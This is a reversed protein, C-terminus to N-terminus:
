PEPEYATIPYIRRPVDDDLLDYAILLPRGARTYGFIAPRRSTRSPNEIVRSSPNAIVEDVEERTVGHRQIHETNWEDWQAATRTM